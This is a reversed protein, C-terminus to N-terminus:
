TERKLDAKPQKQLVTAFLSIFVVFFVIGSQRQLMSEFLSNIVLSLILFFLL